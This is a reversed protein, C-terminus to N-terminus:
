TRVGEMQALARPFVVDLMESHMLRRAALMVRLTDTNVWRYADAEGPQPRVTDGPVSVEGLFYHLIWGEGRVCHIRRLADLPLGTEELVERRAADEPSEGALASGGASAEWWGPCFSKEAARRMLLWGGDRHHVLVESVLHYLGAPVPDGRRLLQGTPREAQNYADWREM